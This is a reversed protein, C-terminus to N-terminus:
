STFPEASELKGSPLASLTHRKDRDPRMYTPKGVSNPRTSFNISHLMLVLATGSVCSYLQQLLLPYKMDDPRQQPARVPEVFEAALDTAAVRRRKSLPEHPELTGSEDGPM